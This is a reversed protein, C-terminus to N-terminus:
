VDTATRCDRSQVVPLAVHFQQDQVAGVQIQEALALRLDVSAVREGVDVRTQGLQCLGATM